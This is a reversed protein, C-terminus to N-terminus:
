RTIQMLFNFFVLTVLAICFKRLKIYKRKIKEVELNRIKKTNEIESLYNSIVSEAEKIIYKPYKGETNKNLVDIKEKINPKLVIYAEKVINSPLDKLIVMNKTKSADM